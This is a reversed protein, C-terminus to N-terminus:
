TTESRRALNRSITAYHCDLHEALERMTYGHDRYARLSETPVSGIQPAPPLSTDTGPETSPPAITM